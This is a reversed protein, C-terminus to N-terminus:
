FVLNIHKEITIKYGGDQLVKIAALQAETLENDKKQNKPLRPRVFVAGSIMDELIKRVQKPELPNPNLLLVNSNRNGGSHQVIGSIQLANVINGHQLKRESFFKSFSFQIPKDTPLISQLEALAKSYAQLTQLDITSM